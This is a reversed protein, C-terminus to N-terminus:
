RLGGHQKRFNGVPGRNGVPKNPTSHSSKTHPLTSKQTKITHRYFHIRFVAHLQFQPSLLMCLFFIVFFVHLCVLVVFMCWLFFFCLWFFACVFICVFVLWFNAYKTNNSSIIHERIHRRGRRGTALEVTGLQGGHAETLQGAQGAVEAAVQAADRLDAHGGIMMMLVMVGRGMVMMMRQVGGACRRRGRRSSRSGGRRGGCGSRRRRMKMRRRRVEVMVEIMVEVAM